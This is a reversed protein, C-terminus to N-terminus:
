TGGLWRTLGTSTVFDAIKNNAWTLFATTQAPTATPELNVITLQEGAANRIIVDAHLAITALPDEYRDPFDIVLRIIEFYEPTLDDVVGM